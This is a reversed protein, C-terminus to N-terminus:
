VAIKNMKTAVFNGILNLQMRIYMKCLTLLEYRWM